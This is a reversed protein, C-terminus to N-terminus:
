PTGGARPLFRWHQNAAPQRIAPSPILSWQTGDWEWTDARYGAGTFGGFLVVRNRHADYAMAPGFRPGPPGANAAMAWGSGNWRWTLGAGSPEGAFALLTDPGTVVLTGGPAISPGAGLDTWASGNWSWLRTVSAGAADGFLGLLAQRIPEFVLPSSLPVMFSVPGSTARLTWPAAGEWEWTDQQGAGAQGAATTFVVFRNRGEDFGGSAHEYGGVGSTSVESWNVGDWEWTDTLRTTGNAARGGWLLVKQSGPDYAMVAGDRAAPGGSGSLLEWQTGDWSWLDGMAQTGSGGFMLVRQRAGDYAMAALWRGAPQPPPAASITGTSTGDVGDITATIDVTGVGTATVLGSGTVMAIGGDSSTFTATRGTIAHGSGDLASATLQQSEAVRLSFTAPALQVEVVQVPDNSNGSSSCAALLLLVGRNRMTSWTV